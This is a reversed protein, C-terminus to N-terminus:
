NRARRLAWRGIAHDVLMGAGVGAANVVLDMPDYVNTMLGYGDTVEFSEVVLLAFLAIAARPVRASAAAITGLFYVAFSVSLNGAYSHVLEAWPGGYSGKLVLALVGLLVLAVRSKSSTTRM